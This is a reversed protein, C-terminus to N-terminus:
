STGAIPHCLRLASLKLESQANHRDRNALPNPTGRSERADTRPSTPTAVKVKNQM